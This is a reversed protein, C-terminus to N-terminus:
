RATLTQDLYNLGCGSVSRLRSCKRFMLSLTAIDLSWKDLWSGPDACHEITVELEMINYTDAPTLRIPYPCLCLQICPVCSEM